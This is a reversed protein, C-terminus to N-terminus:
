IAFLSRALLIAYAKKTERGLEQSIVLISESGAFIVDFIPKAFTQGNNEVVELDFKFFIMHLYRAM